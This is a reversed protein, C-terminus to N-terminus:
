QISRIIGMLCMISACPLLEKRSFTYWEICTSVPCHNATIWTHQEKSMVEFCKFWNQTLMNIEAKYLSSRNERTLLSNNGKICQWCLRLGQIPWCLDWVPMPSDCFASIHWEQPALGICLFAGAERCCCLFLSSPSNHQGLNSQYWKWAKM